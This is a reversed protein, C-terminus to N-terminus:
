AAGQGQKGPLDSATSWSSIPLKGEPGEEAKCKIAKVKGSELRPLLDSFLARSVFLDIMTVLGNQMMLGPHEHVVPEAPAMFLVVAPLGVKNPGTAFAPLTVFSFEIAHPTPTLNVGGGLTVSGAGLLEILWAGPVLKPLKPEARTAAM